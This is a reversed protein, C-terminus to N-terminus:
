KVNRMSWELEPRSKALRVCFNWRLIAEDNGHPRIKEAHQYASFAHRLLDTVRYPERGADLEAKARREYLYGTRYHREYPDKLSAFIKKAEEFRDNEGGTFQDVLALGLFRTAMQHDPDVALIDRCISEMEYPQNLLRWHQAKEIAAPISEMSINKLEM